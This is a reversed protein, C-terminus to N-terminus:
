QWPCSGARGSKQSTYLTVGLPCMRHRSGSREGDAVAGWPPAHCGSTHTEPPRSAQASCAGPTGPVSAALPDQQLKVLEWPCHLFDAHNSPKYGPPGSLRQLARRAGGDGTCLSCVERFFVRRIYNEWVDVDWLFM